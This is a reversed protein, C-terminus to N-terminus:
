AFLIKKIKYSMLKWQMNITKSILIVVNTLITVTNLPMFAVLVFIM